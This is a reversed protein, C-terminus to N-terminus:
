YEFQYITKQYYKEGKKLIISPFDKQNISDPFHQCELCFAFQKVWKENGSEEGNLYNGTYFQVGPETSFVKMRRKTGPVFVEAVKKLENEKGDVIYNHDYGNELKETDRGISKFNRFDMENRVEEIKGTPILNEDVPTFYTSYLKLEHNLINKDDEIGNLNFFSHNTLNLITDEDCIANYEMIIENDETLTYKVAVNLNGPYNEDGNPSFLSFEVSNEFLTSGWIKKDFGVEGGHLSNPGNNIKLIYEKSNLTFKGKSIRNCVRGVTCGYYGLNKLYDEKKDFGLVVNTEKQNENPLILKTITAGHNLLHLTVGNKNKLEFLKLEEQNKMIPYLLFDVFKTKIQTSTQPFNGETPHLYGLSIKQNLFQFYVHKNIDYHLFKIKNRFKTKLFTISWYFCISSVEINISWNFCFL